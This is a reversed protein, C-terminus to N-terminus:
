RGGHSQQYRHHHGPALNEARAARIRGRGVALVVQPGRARGSGPARATPSLRANPHYRWAEAGAGPLKLRNLLLYLM